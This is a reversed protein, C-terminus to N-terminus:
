FNDVVICKVKLKSEIKKKWFTASNDNFISYYTPGAGTLNLSNLKLNNLTKKFSILNPFIELASKEL